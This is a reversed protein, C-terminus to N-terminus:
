PGSPVRASPEDTNAYNDQEIEEDTPPERRKRDEPQAQDPADSRDGDRAAGYGAEEAETTDHDSM